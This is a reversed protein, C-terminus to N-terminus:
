IKPDPCWYVGPDTVAWSFRVKDRKSKTFKARATDDNRTVFNDVHGPFRGASSMFQTRRVEDLRAEDVVDCVCCM